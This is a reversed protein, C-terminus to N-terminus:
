QETDLENLQELLSELMKKAKTKAAGRSRGVAIEANCFGGDTSVVDISYENEVPNDYFGV